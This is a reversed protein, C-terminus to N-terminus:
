DELHELVWEDRRPIVAAWFKGAMKESKYSLWERFESLPKEKRKALSLDWTWHDEDNVIKPTDCYVVMSAAVGLVVCIPSYCDHWFDGPQPHEAHKRNLADRDQTTEM